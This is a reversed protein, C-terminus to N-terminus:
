CRCAVRYKRPLFEIDFSHSMCKQVSQAPSTDIILIIDWNKKRRESTRDREIKSQRATNPETKEWDRQRATKRVTENWGTKEVFSENGFEDLSRSKNPYKSLNIASSFYNNGIKECNKTKEWEFEINERYKILVIQWIIEFISWKDGFFLFREFFWQGKDYLRCFLSSQSFMWRM